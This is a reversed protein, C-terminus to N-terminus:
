EISIEDRYIVRGEKIVVYARPDDWRYILDNVDSANWICLDAKKGIELTGRTDGLALSFAANATCGRVLEAPAMKLNVAAPSLVTRVSAATCSGPNLDSAVAVICGAELLERAPAFRGSGLFITTGPLLTAVTDSEALKKIDEDTIVALHDVSAAGYEIALPVAGLSEFEDAHIRVKLGADAAAKLISETEALTFAGRDCFVDCYEALNGEVVAPIMEECVLSV